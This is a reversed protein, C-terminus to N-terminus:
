QALAHEIDAVVQSLEHAFNQAVITTFMQLCQQAELGLHKAMEHFENHKGAQMGYEVIAALEDSTTGLLVALSDLASQGKQLIWL